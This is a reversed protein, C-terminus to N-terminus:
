PSKRSGFSLIPVVYVEIQAVDSPVSLANFEFDFSAMGNAPMDVFSNTGGVIRGAGDRLVLYAEGDLPDAYTSTADYSIVTRTGYHGVDVNSVVIDGDPISEPIPVGAMPDSAIEVVEFELRTIGDDAQAISDLQDAIGVRQHPRMMGVLHRWPELGSVMTGSRDYGTVRVIFPGLKEGSTNEIVFGYSGVQDDHVYWGHDVVKVVESPMTGGGSPAATSAPVTTPVNTAVSELPLDEEKEGGDGEGGSSTGLAAMAGLVVVMVAVSAGAVLARRDPPPPPLPRSTGASFGPVPPEKTVQTPAPEKKRAKLAERYPSPTTRRGAESM